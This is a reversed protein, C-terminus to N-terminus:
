VLHSFCKIQDSSTRSVASLHTRKRSKKTRFRLAVDSSLQCRRTRGSGKQDFTRLGDSRVNWANAILHKQLAPKRLATSRIDTQIPKTWITSSSSAAVTAVWSILGVVESLACPLDATFDRQQSEFGSCETRSVSTEASQAVAPWYPCAIVFKACAAIRRAALDIRARTPLPSATGGPFSPPLFGRQSFIAPPLATHPAAANRCQDANAIFIFYPFEAEELGGSV